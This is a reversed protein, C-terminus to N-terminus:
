FLYKYGMNITHGTMSSSFDYDYKLELESMGYLWLLSGGVTFTDTDVNLGEVAFPSAYKVFTATSKSATDGFEHTWRIHAEPKFRFFPNGFDLAAKLEIPTQISQLDSGKLNTLAYGTGKEMVDDMEISTYDLGIKPTIIFNRTVMIEYGLDAGISFASVDFDAKATEALSTIKRSTSNSTESWLAYFDMFTRSYHPNVSAYVGLGYTTMDSEFKKNKQEMDGTAYMAALGLTLVGVKRDIGATFGYADFDYGSQNDKNDQSVSVAFPKAWLAVNTSWLVTM